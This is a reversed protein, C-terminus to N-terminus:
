VIRAVYAFMEPGTHIGLVPTLASIALNRVDLSKSLMDGLQQAKEPDDGYHITLDIKHGSFKEVLLEKMNILSRQLGFAKSLTIYVGEDNVTIVPKIRLINGITGEVKGIRGGKRLYKLTNITYIAMSEQFRQQDLKKIIDKIAVKKSVLELAEEVLYGQASGLTKTDYQTVNIGKVEEIALRFANFTGSLGSSINIVLVDTYDEKKLKEIVATFDDMNPLSTTLNHTDIKSYVEEATIEVQDRFSKGDVLIMLPIVHLNPHKKIFDKSLNSGSDTIIATKM